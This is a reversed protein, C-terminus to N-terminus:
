SRNRRLIESLPLGPDAAAGKLVTLLDTVLREATARDFLDTAYILGCHVDGSGRPEHFGLTLDAPATGTDVADLTGLEGELQSREAQEHHIVLVQPGDWGLEGAVEELPTEQHDLASLATERVRGLLDTFAPDDGTDTRLVVTNFFCGVLDALGDETRGAVLTGIPLDNGAGHGTLVTALASQLVMFMTTRTARALRDVAAHLEEDLVFEVVSGPGGRVGAAAGPRDAPLPLETPLGRLTRRWYDLQRAATSRPDAPDGLM